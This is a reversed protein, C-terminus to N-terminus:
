RALEPPAERTFPHRVAMREGNVLDWGKGDDRRVYFWGDWYLRSMRGTEAFDVAGSRLDNDWVRLGDTIRVPVRDGTLFRADTEADAEALEAFGRMDLSM